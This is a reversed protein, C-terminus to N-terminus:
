NTQKDHPYSIHTELQKYKWTMTAMIDGEEQSNVMLQLKQEQASIPQDFEKNFLTQKEKLHHQRSATRCM